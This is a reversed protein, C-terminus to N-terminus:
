VPTVDSYAIRDDSLINVEYEFAVGGGTLGKVFFTFYDLTSITHSKAIVSGATYPKDDIIIDNFVIEKQLKIAKMIKQYTGVKIGTATTTISIKDGNRNRLPIIVQGGVM